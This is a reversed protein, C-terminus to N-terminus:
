NLGKLNLPLSEQDSNSTRYNSSQQEKKGKLYGSILAYIQSRDTTTLNQGRFKLGQSTTLSHALDTVDLDSRGALYDMSVNFYQALKMIELYSPIRAGREWNEIQSSTNPHTQKAQQNLNKALQSLTLHRGIRLAKLRDPFM